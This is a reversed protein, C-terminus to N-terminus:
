AAQEEDPWSKNEHWFQYTEYTIPKSACHPWLHDAPVPQGAREAVLQGGQYFIACAIRPWRNGKAPKADPSRDQAAYYGPQPEDEYIPQKEGALAARWFKFHDTM